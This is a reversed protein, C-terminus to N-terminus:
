DVLAAFKGDEITFSLVEQSVYTGASLNKADAGIGHFYTAILHLNQDWPYAMLVEEVDLWPTDLKYVDFVMITVDERLNVEYGKSLYFRLVSEKQINGSTSDVSIVVSANLMHKRERLLISNLNLTACEIVIRWWFKNVLRTAKM